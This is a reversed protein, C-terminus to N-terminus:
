ESKNMGTEPVPQSHIKALLTAATSTDLGNTLFMKIPKRYVELTIKEIEYVNVDDTIINLKHYIEKLEDETPSWEIINLTQELEQKFLFLSFNLM